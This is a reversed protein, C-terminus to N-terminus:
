RNWRKVNELDGNDLQPDWNATTWAGTSELESYKFSYALYSSLKWRLKDASTGTEIRPPQWHRAWNWLSNTFLKPVEFVFASYLFRKTPLNVLLGYKGLSDITNSALRGSNSVSMLRKWNLSRLPRKTRELSICVRWSANRAFISNSWSCWSVSKDIVTLLLKSQKCNLKTIRPWFYGDVKLLSKYVCIGTPTLGLNYEMSDGGQNECIFTTWKVQNLM